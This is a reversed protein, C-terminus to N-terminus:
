GTLLSKLMAYNVDSMIAEFEYKSGFVDYTEFRVNYRSMPLEGTKEIVKVYDLPCRIVNGDLRFVVEKKLLTISGTENFADKYLKIQKPPEGAM